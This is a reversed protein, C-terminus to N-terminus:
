MTDMASDWKEPNSRIYERIHFLETENRVIHEWYNRQWIKGVIRRPETKVVHTFIARCCLSKFAGIIDGLKLVHTNAVIPSLNSVSQTHYIETADFIDEIVSNQAGALPAGVAGMDPNIKADNAIEGNEKIILICHIHNPMVILEDLDVNSFRKSIAHWQASVIRGIDNIQMQSNDVTGFLWKHDHTCITMFYSGNRSYDYDRLRISRRQHRDPDYIM